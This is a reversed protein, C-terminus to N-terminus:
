SFHTRPTMWPVDSVAPSGDGGFNMVEESDEQLVSRIRVMPKHVPLVPVPADGRLIRAAEKMTPRKKPDPHVCCLGVTLMREVDARNFKSNLRSDIAEVLKGREWLSWVWDILVTGYEDVPRRGTTVELVVVGFSYVDTKETPIGSYVYEPALYGMTGAPITAERTISNREYVEALGFDGLKANLEADLMINCTKVDRHIIQGECEEHLYSLASAVGLVIMLRHQWSLFIASSSYKHLIKDLSGNPLYEYVLVLETGECCWGQLQVLNKHRLCGVMMAFETTFPNHTCDIRKTKDFRKIALAGGNPLSGKYVTASAGEGVIRNRHFGMTASKVESLSLRTPARNVRCAQGQKNRSIQRRKRIVFFSVMGLIIVISAVIASLGGWVFAMDGVKIKREHPVVTSSLDELSCMFCDGEEVLDIDMPTESPRSVFTKFRWRSVIHNASGQGNSASFGVHMYEKFQKSLDIEAVLVPNPPRILSHSVWVRVLKVADRYEIWTMVERGSKLDIGRSAADVSAFSIISNVDIGIHHDNIDGLSPNFSTDFEVAVFSDQTDSASDPLGMYGNSSSFSNANSTILFTMGDGFPCLPSSIISFSFHCSFSATTNTGSNLFRIPYVFFSRGIGTSSSSSPRPPPTSSSSTLCNLEQTLCVSNNLSYADGYLTINSSPLFPHSLSPFTFHFFFLFHISFVLISCSRM